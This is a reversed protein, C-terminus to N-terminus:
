PSPEEGADETIEEFLARLKRLGRYYRTKATNAPIALRQAVEDFTLEEFHKLRVIAATDPDLAELGRLVEERDALEDRAPEPPPEERPESESVLRSRRRSRLKKMLEFVCFSYAWTELAARGDYSPLKHWLRTLVEQVVDELDSNQLPQGLKRNRAAVIRPVCELRAVLSRISAADGGLAREVVWRDDRGRESTPRATGM